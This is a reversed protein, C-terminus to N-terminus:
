ARQKAASWRYKRVILAILQQQVFNYGGIYFRPELGIRNHTLGIARIGEVYADDFRGSFLREWHTTQAAKLRSAQDGVMESLASVTSVHAYFGDLIEPLSPLIVNWIEPLLASVEPTILMFRKRRAWEDGTQMNDTM